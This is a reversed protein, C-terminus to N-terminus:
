KWGGKLGIDIRLVYLLILVKSRAMYYNKRRSWSVIEERRTSIDFLKRWTTIYVRKKREIKQWEILIADYLSGANMWQSSYLEFCLKEWRIKGVQPPAQWSLSVRRRTEPLYGDSGDAFQLLPCGVGYETHFFPCAAHLPIPQRM